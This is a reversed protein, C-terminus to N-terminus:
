RALRYIAGTQATLYLEGRTDEGFSTLSEVRFPERRVQRAKGGAIRLSWVVGSCHDGYFYRGRAAPVGAGRYVFGGIVSCHGGSLPYVVVPFVLRGGSPRKSEFRARGEYVDWGFNLLRALARRAVYDVEEWANQGVDGIYLDRTARDFSFRWPNRLGRAEIKVGGTAVNISLLKGLLARPNQSRGEPDGGAGGDGMGVYLRGDPGFLVQGGNHNSYPQDVFLLQRRTQPLARDGDSRYEVVRTDGNVDTYNLYFRRNREYSPHFAISFLGQESGSSGVLNRIDLFPDGRLRGNEVVRVRGAKEVVYLRDPESAPTAVHLPADLGSVVLRLSLQSRTADAREGGALSAVALAVVAVAFLRGWM